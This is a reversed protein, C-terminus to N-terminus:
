HEHDHDELETDVAPDLIPEPTVVPEIPRPPPLVTPEGTNAVSVGSGYRPDIEASDVILAIWPRADQQALSSAITALDERADDFSQTRREDIRFLYLSEAGAPDPVAVPGEDVGIAAADFADGLADPLQDQSVCQEAPDVALSAGDVVEPLEEITSGDRLARRAEGESGTPVFAVAVCVQQWLAPVGEYLMRLDDDSEPDLRSFRENLVGQAAVLEVIKDVTSDAYELGNAELQSDLQQRASSRDADTIELGWRDVEAIWAVRQLEFQLVNRFLDGPIRSDTVGEAGPGVFGEDRALEEVSEVTVSHGLLTAASTDALVGCASGLLAAAALLTALILPRTRRM